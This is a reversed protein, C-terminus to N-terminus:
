LFQSISIPDSIQLFCAQWITQKGVSFGLKPLNQPTKGHFIKTYKIGM